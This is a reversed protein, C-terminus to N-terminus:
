NVLKKEHQIGLVLVAVKVFHIRLANMNREYVLWM